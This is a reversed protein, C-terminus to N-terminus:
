PNRTYRAIIKAWLYTMISQPINHLPSSPIIAEDGWARNGVGGGEGFDMLSGVIHWNPPIINVVQCCATCACLVHVTM